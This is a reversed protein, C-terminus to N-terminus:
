EMQSLVQRLEDQSAGREDRTQKEERTLSDKNTLNGRFNYLKNILLELCFPPHGPDSTPPDSSHQASSHKATPPLYPCSSASAPWVSCDVSSHTSEPRSWSVSGAHIRTVVNDPASVSRLPHKLIFKNISRFTLNQGQLGPLIM